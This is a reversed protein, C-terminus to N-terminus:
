EQFCYVARSPTCASNGTSAGDVSALSSTGYQADESVSTWNTCNTSTAPFGAAGTWVTENAPDGTATLQIPAIQGFYDLMDGASEFVKVGDPRVWTQGVLNFRDTPASSGVSM